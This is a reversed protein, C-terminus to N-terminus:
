LKKGTEDIAYAGPYIFKAIFPQSDATLGVFVQREDSDLLSKEDALKLMMEIECTESDFAVVYPLPQGLPDCIMVRLDKTERRDLLM